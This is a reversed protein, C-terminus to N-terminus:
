VTQARTLGRLQEVLADIGTDAPLRVLLKGAPSFLLFENSHDMTYGGPLREDRHEVAIVGLVQEVRETVDAPATLGIIQTSFHGLYDNLKEATDRAPDISVFVPQIRRADPDLQRLALTLNYLATPCADPCLTFGFYMLAFRGHLVAPDFEAGQHDVFGQLAAPSVSNAATAGEPTARLTVLFMAVGAGVGLVLVAALKILASVKAQKDVSKSM